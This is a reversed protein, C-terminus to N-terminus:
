PAPDKAGHRNNLRARSVAATDSSDSTNALAQARTQLAAASLPQAVALLTQGFLTQRLKM